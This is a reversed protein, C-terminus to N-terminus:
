ETLSIRPWITPEGCSVRLAVIAACEDATMESTDVEVDYRKGLHVCKTQWRATGAPRDGRKLERAELVDLACHVGVFVVRLGTLVAKCESTWEDKVLVHDAIVNNGAHALAAISRHFGSFLRAEIERAEPAKRGTPFPGQPLMQIFYDGGAYLYIDPYLASQLARALTSKGSSSAGNLVIVTGSM